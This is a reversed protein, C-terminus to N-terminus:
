NASTRKLNVSLAFLYALSALIMVWTFGLEVSIILALVTSVVSVCGNIGWAWPVSGKDRKSVYSLGLPFPIGMFVSMPVLLLMAFSIKVGASHSITEKLATTLFFSYSMLIISIIGLITIFIKRTLQLRSSLYSGVGSFILMVSIVFAVSYIPNGFYLIFRQILVIEVFMYGIGIGAFYFFTWFKNGGKWGIKFLPVLILVIAVVTIQIFTLIVIIYGIEFFPIARDGFQDKLNSLSKWRIFQSFYPRDDTAPEINFDYDTCFSKWKSSLVKDLYDFFYKDQLKNYKEKEGPKLDPLIVPDFLLRGCFKQVNNGESMNIPTKKVIITVTGWSRVSAIYDTPNYMNEEELVKSITSLIKLINRTPYDIWCTISIVGDTNLKDWSEKFAEKTLIFQEKLAFLGSSGGFSGVDPLVILDYKLTDTLLFTRSEMNELRVSPNDFVSGIKEAFENKLLIPIIPNSEVAVVESVNNKLALVVDKGTGADLILARERKGLTYALANTSYDLVFATDAKDWNITPGLWDGNVFIASKVPVTEKYVLSLGPAYRMTPASVLEILGYPSSKVAETKSGPLDLTKRLSKFESLVLKPPNFIVVAIIVMSTCLSLIMYRRHKKQIILAGSIIPLIAIIAPLENPLFIWFLGIILIGGAGSGILNAFYVKGIKDIYKTFILGIPLAGLLFPIIFLLYTLFLKYVNTYDSFLLLSDFRVFSFQSFITVTAMTIGSLFMLLPLVVDFRDLLWKKFIVLITGAAGFGLLAVSIVMYAFHYWQVISLTQMLVLQFAIISASLCGLSFLMRKKFPPSLM